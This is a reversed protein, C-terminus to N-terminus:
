LDFEGFERTLRERCMKYSPDSMVKRFTRQIRSAAWYRDFRELKKEIRKVMHYVFIWTYSNGPVLKTEYGRFYRENKRFWTDDMIVRGSVPAVYSVSTDTIRINASRVNYAILHYKCFDSGPFVSPEPCPVFECTHKGCGHDTMFGCTPVYCYCM